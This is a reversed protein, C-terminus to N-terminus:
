ELNLNMQFLTVWHNTQFLGGNELSVKAHLLAEKTPSVSHKYTVAIQISLSNTAYTVM